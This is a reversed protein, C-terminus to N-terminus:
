GSPRARPDLGDAARRTPDLRTFLVTVTNGTGTNNPIDEENVRVQWDRVNTERISAQIKVTGKVFSGNNPSYDLFEPRKVDVLVNLRVENYPNNPENVTM